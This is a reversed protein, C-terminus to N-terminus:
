LYDAQITPGRSGYRITATVTEGPKICGEAARLMRDKVTWLRAARGGPGDEAAAACEAVLSEHTKLGPDGSEAAGYVREILAALQAANMKLIRRSLVAGYLPLAAADAADAAPAPLLIDIPRSRTEADGEAAPNRIEVDARLSIRRPGATKRSKGVKELRDKRWESQLDFETREGGAHEHIEVMRIETIRRLTKYAPYGAADPDPRATPIQDGEALTRKLIEACAGQISEDVLIPPKEADDIRWPRPGDPNEPGPRWPALFGPEEALEMGWSALRRRTAWGIDISGAATGIFEPGRELVFGKAQLLIGDVAGGIGGDFPARAQALKGDPAAEVQM